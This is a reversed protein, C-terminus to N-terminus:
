RNGHWQVDLNFFKYDGRDNERRANIYWNDGSTTASEGVGFSASKGDITLKPWYVTRNLGDIHIEDGSGRPRGSFAIEVDNGTNTEGRFNAAEGPELKTQGDSRRDWVYVANRSFSNNVRIEVGDTGFLGALEGTASASQTASGSSSGCAALLLGTTVALVTIIRMSLRYSDDRRRTGKSLSLRVLRPLLM